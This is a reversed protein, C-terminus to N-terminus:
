IPFQEDGYMQEYLKRIREFMKKRRSRIANDTTGEERAIAAVQRGECLKWFLERQEPLLLPLIERVRDMLSSPPDDAFLADEPSMSADALAEIPDTARANGKAAHAARTIRFAPDELEDEYRDNLDERHYSDRLVTIVQETVGDKGPTLRYPKGDICYFFETRADKAM